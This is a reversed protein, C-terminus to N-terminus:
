GALLDTAEKVDDICYILEGMQRGASLRQLLPWAPYFDTWYERGVLILPAIMSPDAAYFNETVAQFIEQVTGAQGPLYIVGGGCRHLLTDERLANSFYKAIETAFINTPEHGYFWTPISLSRGASTVPWRARVEFASQAWADISPWYGGAAPTMIMLADDLSGPWPSLYAGLNAAEMAGPGGGTLVTRGALTLSSGLEAAARYTDEGRLAAHGGMIGVIARRDLDSTSENLAATIAHDHLTMGLEGTLKRAAQSHCWAYVVADPSEAYNGPGYLEAADYLRARYPDFPLDPLRPFLLAGSRRLHHEVAPAFVCGLFVAGQPDVKLLVDARETLDVSQVFWGNLRQTKGIHADFDDLSEIDILRLTVTGSTSKEHHACEALRGWTEHHDSRLASARLRSIM